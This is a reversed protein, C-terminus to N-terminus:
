GEGWHQPLLLFFLVPTKLVQAEVFPAHETKFMARLSPGGRASGWHSFEASLSRWPHTAWKTYRGGREGFPWPNGAEGPAPSPDPDGPLAGVAKSVTKTDISSIWRAPSSPLKLIAKAWKERQELGRPPPKGLFKIGPNGAQFSQQLRWAWDQRGGALRSNERGRYAGSRSGLAHSSPM